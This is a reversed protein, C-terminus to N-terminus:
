VQFFKKVIQDLVGGYKTAFDGNAAAKIYLCFAQEKDIETV